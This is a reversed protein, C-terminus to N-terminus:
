QDYLQAVVAGFTNEPLYYLSQFATIVSYKESTGYRRGLVEKQVMPDQHCFSFHNQIHPYRMKATSIAAESSDVGEADLGNARFYNVAAGEGCGFDLLKEYNRPWGFDPELITGLFRFAFHDVNPANYGREWYAKNAALYKAESDVVASEGLQLDLDKLFPLQRETSFHFQRWSRLNLPNLAVIGQHRPANM